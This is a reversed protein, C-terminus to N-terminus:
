KAHKEAGYTRRLRTQDAKSLEQPRSQLQPHMISDKGEDHDLGLAHCMEHLVIAYAKAEHVEPLKIQARLLWGDKDAGITTEGHDPDMGNDDVVAIIGSDSPPPGEFNSNTPGMAVDMFLPRGIVKNLYGCVNMLAAVYVPSLDERYWIILDIDSSWRILRGKPTEMFGKDRWRGRLLVGVVVGAIALTFLFGAAIFTVPNLKMFEWLSM